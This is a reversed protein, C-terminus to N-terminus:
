TFFYEFIKQQGAPKSQRLIFRVVMVTLFLLSKKGQRSFNIISFSGACAWNVTINYSFCYTRIAQYFGKCITGKRM